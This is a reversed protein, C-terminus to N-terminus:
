PIRTFNVLIFVCRGSDVPVGLMDHYGKSRGDGVIWECRQVVRFVRM